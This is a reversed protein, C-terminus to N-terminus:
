ASTSESNRYGDDQDDEAGAQKFHIDDEEADHEMQEVRQM